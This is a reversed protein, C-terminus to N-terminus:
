RHEQRVVRDEPVRIEAHVRESQTTPELESTSGSLLRDLESLSDPWAREWCCRHDYTPHLRVEAGPQREIARRVLTPPISEDRGALHHIQLIDPSLPPRQAPDLSGELPAFAHHDTWAGADLNGALTVVAVTDPAREALLMAIAGGGSHGILVIEDAPNRKRWAGLAEAMGEIVADGYRAGQWSQPDCALAGHHCPRGLLIARTEDLAMLRLMLPDSPTPDPPAFRVANRPLGDGEIYVHLGTGPRPPAAEYIVLTGARTGVTHRAFGMAQATSDYRNAPTACAVLSAAVLTALRAGWRRSAPATV